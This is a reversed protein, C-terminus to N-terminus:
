LLSNATVEHTKKEKTEKKALCADPLLLLFITTAPTKFYPRKM